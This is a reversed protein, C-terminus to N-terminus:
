AKAWLIILFCNHVQCLIELYKLMFRSRLTYKQFQEEKKKEEGTWHQSSEYLTKFSKCIKLERLSPLTQPDLGRRYHWSILWCLGINDKLSKPIRQILWLKKGKIISRFPLL